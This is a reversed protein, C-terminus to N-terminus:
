LFSTNVHDAGGCNGLPIAPIQDGSCRNVAATLPDKIVAKMAIAPVEFSFKLDKSQLAVPTNSCTLPLSIMASILKFRNNEDAIFLVVVQRQAYKPLGLLITQNGIGDLRFYRHM